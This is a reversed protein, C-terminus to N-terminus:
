AYLNKKHHTILHIMHQIILYMGYSMGIHWIAHGQLYRLIEFKYCLTETIIWIIASFICCFVGKNLIRFIYDKWNEGERLNSSVFSPAYLPVNIPECLSLIPVNDIDRFTSSHNYMVKRFYYINFLLFILPIAFLITFLNSITNLVLGLILYISSIICMINISLEKIHNERKLIYLLNNYYLLTALYVGLLMSYEDFLKWGYHLTWHYAFSSFGNILIMTYVLRYNINVNKNFFLGIFGIYIIFLSSVCNVIEPLDGDISECFGNERTTWNKM